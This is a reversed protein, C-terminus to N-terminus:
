SRSRLLSPLRERESWPLVRDSYDYIPRAVDEDDWIKEMQDHRDDLIVTQFYEHGANRIDMWQFAILKGRTKAADKSRVSLPEALWNYRGNIYFTISHLSSHGQVEFRKTVPLEHDVLFAEVEDAFTSVRRHQRKYLLDGVSVAASVLRHLGDGVEAQPIKVSLESSGFDFDVAYRNAISNAEKLYDDNGELKLGSLFLYDSTGCDDTIVVEGPATEVLRLEIYEGDHRAFPTVLLCGEEDPVLLFQGELYALYAAIAKECQSNM